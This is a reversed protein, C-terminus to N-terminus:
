YFIPVTIFRYRVLLIPVLFALFHTCLRYWFYIRVLFEAGTGPVLHEDRNGPITEHMEVM